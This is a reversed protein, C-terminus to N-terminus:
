GARIGAARIVEGWRQRDRAILANFDAIPGGLIEM